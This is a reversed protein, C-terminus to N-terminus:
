CPARWRTRSERRTEQQLRDVEVRLRLRSNIKHAVWSRTYAMTYHALSIVHLLASKATRSWHNLLFSRLSAQRGIM